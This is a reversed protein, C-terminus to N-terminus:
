SKVGGALPEAQSCHIRRGRHFPSLVEISGSEWDAFRMSDLLNRNAGFQKRENWVLEGAVAPYETYRRRSQGRQWDAGASLLLREFLLKHSRPREYRAVGGKPIGLRGITNVRTADKHEIAIPSVGHQDGGM